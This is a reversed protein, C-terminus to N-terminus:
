KKNKNYYEKITNKAKDSLLSMTEEIKISNEMWKEGLSKHNDLEEKAIKWKENGDIIDFPNSSGSIEPYKSCAIYWNGNNKWTIKLRDLNDNKPLIRFMVSDSNYISFASYYRTCWDTNKALEYSATFNIPILVDLKDDSYVIDYKSEETQVRYEDSIKNMHLGFQSICRFKFIDNELLKTSDGGIYYESKKSKSKYWGTSFIFLFYELDKNFYTNFDDINEIQEDTVLNKYCKILWKVYKGPKSFGKKRISTPDLNVINYFTKKDIDSYWKERVAESGISKELIFYENFDNFRKIRM